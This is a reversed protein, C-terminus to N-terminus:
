PVPGSGRPMAALATLSVLPAAENDKSGNDGVSCQFCARNGTANWTRNAVYWFPTLVHFILSDVEAFGVRFEVSGNIGKLPPNALANGGRPDILTKRM